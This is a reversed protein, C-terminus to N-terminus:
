NQNKRLLFEIRPHDKDIFRKAIIQVCNNDNKIANVVQLMDLIVKLSNDLDARRSPYYVDVEFVFEQDINLNKHHKCQLAFSKEYEKLEKTKALSAHSSGNIKSKFTIIRYCNSKSPTVGMIVEKKEPLTKTHMVPEDWPSSDSM